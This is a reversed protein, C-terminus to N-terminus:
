PGELWKWRLFVVPTEFWPNQTPLSVEIVRKEDPDAEIWVNNGLYVLAHVGDTTVALDGMKLQAPDATNINEHRFLETTWGRYSNRLALASADYWWIEFARRLPEGNLSRIGNSVLGWFLAKRVLGSCDIGLHNEGGWVYRVGLYSRLARAYDEEIADLEPIRGPLCLALIPIAAAVILVARLLRKRWWFVLAGIWTLILLLVFVARTARYEIPWLLLVVLGICGLFWARKPSQRSREAFKM